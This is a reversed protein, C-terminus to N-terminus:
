RLSVFFTTKCLMLLDSGSHHHLVSTKIFRASSTKNINRHHTIHPQIAIFVDCEKKKVWRLLRLHCIDDDDNNGHNLSTFSTFLNDCYCSLIIIAVSRKGTITKKEEWSIRRRRLLVLSHSIAFPILM